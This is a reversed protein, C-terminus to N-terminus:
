PSPGDDSPRPPAVPEREPAPVAPRPAERLALQERSQPEGRELLCGVTMWCLKPECRGWVQATDPVQIELHNCQPNM